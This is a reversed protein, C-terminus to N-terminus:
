EQKQLMTSSLVITELELCDQIFPPLTKGVTFLPHTEALAVSL